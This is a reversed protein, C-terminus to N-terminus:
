EIIVLLLCGGFVRLTMYGRFFFTLIVAHICEGTTSEYLLSHKKNKNKVDVCVVLLNEEM